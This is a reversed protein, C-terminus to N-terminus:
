KTFDVEIAPTVTQGLLTVAPEYIGNIKLKNFTNFRKYTV